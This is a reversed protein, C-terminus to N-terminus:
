SLTETEALRKKTDKIAGVLIDALAKRAQVEFPLGGGIPGQKKSLAEQLAAVQEATTLPGEKEVQKLRLIKNPNLGAAKLQGQARM